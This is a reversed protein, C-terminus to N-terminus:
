GVTTKKRAAFFNRNITYYLKIKHGRSILIESDNPTGSIIASESIKVQPGGSASRQERGLKLPGDLQTHGTRQTMVTSFRVKFSSSTVEGGPPGDSHFWRVSVM